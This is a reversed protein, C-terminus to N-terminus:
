CRRPPPLLEYRCRVGRVHLRQRGEGGTDDSGDLYRYSKGRRRVGGALIPKSVPLKWRVGSEADVATIWGRSSDPPERCERRAEQKRSKM